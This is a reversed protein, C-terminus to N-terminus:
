PQLACSDSKRLPELSQMPNLARSVRDVNCDLEADQFVCIVFQVRKGCSLIRQPREELEHVGHAAEALDGRRQRIDWFVM